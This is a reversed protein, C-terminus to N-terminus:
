FRLREYDAYDIQFYFLTYWEELFPYIKGLQGSNFRSDIRIYKNVLNKFSNYDTKLNHQAIYAILKAKETSFGSYYSTQKAYYYILAHDNLTLGFADIIDRKDRKIAKSGFSYELSWTHDQNSRLWLDVIIKSYLEESPFPVDIEDGTIEETTYILDSNPNDDFKKWAHRLFIVTSDRVESGIEGMRVMHDIIEQKYRGVAETIENDSIEPMLDDRLKNWLEVDWRVQNEENEDEEIDNYLSDETIM